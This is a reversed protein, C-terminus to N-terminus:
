ERPASMRLRRGLLIAMRGLVLLVAAWMLLPTTSTGTAQLRASGSTNAGSAPLASSARIATTTSSSSSTPVSSSTTTTSSSAVTSITTSTTSTSAPVTTTTTTTTTTTSAPPAALKWTIGSPQDAPDVTFTLQVNWYKDLQTASANGLTCALGLNYTGAPIFSPGDAGFVAFSFSPINTLRGEPSGGTAVATLGDVFTTGTSSFLPTRLNAGTGSPIPGVFDFTLTRPDVSAPVIYSQIRYGGKTSDGSCAAGAPPVLDFETASGGATLAAGSGAARVQLTGGNTAAAETTATHVWAVLVAASLAAAARTACRFRSRSTATTM